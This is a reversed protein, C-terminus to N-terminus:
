VKRGKRKQKKKFDDSDFFCDSETLFLSRGKSNRLILGAEIIDDVFDGGKEKVKFDREM